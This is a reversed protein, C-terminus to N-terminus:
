IYLVPVPKDTMQTGREINQHGTKTDMAASRIERNQPSAGPIVLGPGTLSYIRYVYLAIAM